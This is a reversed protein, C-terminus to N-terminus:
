NVLGGLDQTGRIAQLGTMTATIPTRNRDFARVVMRFNSGSALSVYSFETCYEPLRLNDYGDRSLVNYVAIMNPMTLPYTGEEARYMNMARIVEQVAQGAMRVRTRDKADMFNAIAMRALIGLTIVIILIEVLSIVGKQNGMGLWGSMFPYVGKFGWFGITGRQYKYKIDIIYGMFFKKLMFFITM